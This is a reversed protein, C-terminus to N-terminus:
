PRELRRFLNELLSSAPEYRASAGLNMTGAAFVRAGRRTEYYTMEASIGLGFVHPVRALLRIGPPSSAARADIEIGYRGFSSGAHLGTGRFLWPAAGTDTVLYPKNPYIGRYWDVYQVGILAAEPRGLDRWAGILEILRGHRDVRRFFNNASLFALNGGLDRYRQTVDYEHTTVYEHHGPFVVLDYARALADGSAVADLDQDALFDVQGLRGSRAVWILFGLDYSRFHPPVGGDLYARGLDVSCRRHVYSSRAAPHDCLDISSPNAYWTDAVGDGDMDRKNYAQWTYTPMVVAIRHEGLRRPRVIVPALTREGNPTSIQAFYVGGPWDEGLRMRVAGRGSAIRRVPMQVRPSFSRIRGSRPQWSGWAAGSITWRVTVSPADTAVALVAEAGPAYSAQAFAATLGARDTAVHPEARAVPPAALLATMLVVGAVRQM